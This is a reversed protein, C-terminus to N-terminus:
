AHSSRLSHIRRQRWGSLIRLSEQRWQAVYALAKTAHKRATPSGCERIHVLDAVVGAAYIEEIHPGDWSCLHKFAYCSATRANPSGHRLLSALQAIAGANIVECTIENKWSCLDGLVHAAHAITSQNATVMMLTIAQPAGDEVAAKAFYESAKCFPGLGYVANNASDIADERFLDILSSIAPKGLMPVLQSDQSRAMCGILVAAANRCSLPGDQLMSLLPSVVNCMEVQLAVASDWKCLTHLARVALERLEAQGGKPPELFAALAPAAGLNAAEAVHARKWRLL